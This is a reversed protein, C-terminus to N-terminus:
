YCLDDQARMHSPYYYHRYHLSNCIKEYRYLPFINNVKFNELEFRKVLYYINYHVCLYPIRTNWM